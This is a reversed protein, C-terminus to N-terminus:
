DFLKTHKKTNKVYSQTKLMLKQLKKYNKIFLMSIIIYFKNCMSYNNFTAIEDRNSQM